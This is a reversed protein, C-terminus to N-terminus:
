PLFFLLVGVGSHIERHLQVLTPLVRSLILSLQPEIKLFHIVTRKTAKCRKPPIGRIACEPNVCVAESGGLRSDCPNCYLFKTHGFRQCADHMIRKVSKNIKLLIKIVNNPESVPAGFMALYDDLFSAMKESVGFHLKFAAAYIVQQQFTPHPNPIRAEDHVDVVNEEQVEDAAEEVEKPHEAGPRESDVVMSEEGVEREQDPAQEANLEALQHASEVVEAAKARLSQTRRLPRPMKVLPESPEEEVDRSCSPVDLTRKRGM